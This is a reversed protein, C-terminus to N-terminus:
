SSAWTLRGVLLLHFRDPGAGDRRDLRLGLSIAATQLSRASFLEKFMPNPVFQQPAGPQVPAGPAGPTVPVPAGPVPAGPAPAAFTGPAPAAAAVPAAPPFKEPRLPSQCKQRRSPLQLLKKHPSQNPFRRSPRARGRATGRRPIRTGARSRHRPRRPRYPNPSHPSPLPHKRSPRPQPATHLPASCPRIKSTTTATQQPSRSRRGCQTCFRAASSLTTGCHPCIM